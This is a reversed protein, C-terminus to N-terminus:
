ISNGNQFRWKLSIKWRDIDAYFYDAIYNQILQGRIVEDSMKVLCPERRLIQFLSECYVDKHILDMSKSYEQNLLHIYIRMKVGIESLEDSFELHQISTYDQREPVRTGFGCNFIRFWRRDPMPKSFELNTMKLDPFDSLSREEMKEAVLIWKSRGRLPIVPLMLSEGFLLDVSEIEEIQIDSSESFLNYVKILFSEDDRREEPVYVSCFAFGIKPKSVEDLDELPIAFCYTTSKQFNM